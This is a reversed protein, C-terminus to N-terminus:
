NKCLNDSGIPLTVLPVNGATVTSGAVGLQTMNTDDITDADPKLTNTITDHIDRYCHMMTQIGAPRFSTNSVSSILNIGVLNFFMKSIIPHNSQLNTEITTTTTTFFIPSGIWSPISSGPPPFQLVLTQPTMVSVNHKNAAYWNSFKLQALSFQTTTGDDATGNLMDLLNKQDYAKSTLSLSGNQLKGINYQILSTNFDAAPNPDNLINNLTHETM